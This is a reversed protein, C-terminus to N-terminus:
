RYIAYAVPVLGVGRFDAFYVTNSFDPWPYIKVKTVGVVTHHFLIGEAKINQALVQKFQPRLIVSRRTVLQWIPPNIYDGSTVMKEFFTKFQKSARNPMELIHLVEGHSESIHYKQIGEVKEVIFSTEGSSHIVGVTTINFFQKM